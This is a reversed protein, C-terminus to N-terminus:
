QTPLASFVVTVVVYKVSASGVSFLYVKKELVDIVSICLVSVVASRLLVFM